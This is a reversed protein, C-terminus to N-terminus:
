LCLVSRRLCCFCPLLASPEKEYGEKSGSEKLFKQLDTEPFGNQQYKKLSACLATTVEQRCCSCHNEQDVFCVWRQSICSGLHWNLDLSHWSCHLTLRDTGSCDTRGLVTLHTHPHRPSHCSFVISPSVGSFLGPSLSFHASFSNFSVMWVLFSSHYDHSRCIDSWM